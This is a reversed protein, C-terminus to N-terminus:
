ASAYRPEAFHILNGQPDRLMTSNRTVKLPQDAWLLEVDDQELTTTAAAKAARADFRACDRLTHEIRANLGTVLGSV